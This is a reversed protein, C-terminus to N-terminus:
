KKDEKKSVVQEFSNDFSGLDDGSATWSPELRKRLRENEAQVWEYNRNAQRLSQECTQLQEKLEGCRQELATIKKQAIELQYATELELQTGSVADEDM